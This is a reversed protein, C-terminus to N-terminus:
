TEAYGCEKPHNLMSLVKDFDKYLESVDTECSDSDEPVVDKCFKKRSVIDKAAEILMNIGADNMMKIFKYLIGLERFM